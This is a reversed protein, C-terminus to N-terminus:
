YILEDVPRRESSTTLKRGIRAQSSVTVGAQGHVLWLCSVVKIRALITCSVRCSEKTMRGNKGTVRKVGSDSKLNSELDNLETRTEQISQLHNVGTEGKAWQFNAGECRSTSCSSFPARMRLTLGADRGQWIQFGTRHLINSHLPRGSCTHCTRAKWPNNSHLPPPLFYSRKCSLLTFEALEKKRLKYFLM